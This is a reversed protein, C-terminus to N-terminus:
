RFYNNIELLLRGKINPLEFAGNKHDPLNKSTNVCFVTKVSTPLQLMEGAFSQGQDIVDIDLCKRVPIYNLLTVILDNNRKRPVSLISPPLGYGALPKGVMQVIIESLIERIFLNGSQRYERFIPDSFYIVNKNSMVAPYIQDVRDPPTQFHSCFKLDSRKFYPVVRDILVKFDGSPKMNLGRQYFVRESAFGNKQFSATPKWFTPWAETEGDCHLPLQTLAWENNKDFGSRFSILTKGGDKIRNNLKEKLKDTIVVSDPLIILSFGTLDSSDDLMAVDYHLEELLLVVGEESKSSETENIGPYNPCLVGIQPLSVSDKYFVEAEATQKYVSGIMRYTEMDLVGRPHLQDGVSNAGGLAQSRFCEYELAAQPKLGGFDGWMKQFKGTMGLWPKGKYALRRALRPFHYYGWFGSPLSEIEFHTQYAAKKMVGEDGNIYLNNPTNYFVSAAPAKSKIQASFRRTFEEQALSEFYIQNEPTDKLLNHKSRFKISEDSWSGEEHYFLIDVFLGDVEFQTLIENLHAEIYDQYDPNVWDNFKWPAQQKAGPDAGPSCNAFSGNKKLQRWEPHTAAINEEWGITTYIPARIGEKHLAELMEGLLNKGKLAPHMVGVRTPYYSMGHHCKAFVTISNINSDKLTRAFATADFQAAVDGIFPSTHFDLHVQRQHTLFNTRDTSDAFGTNPHIFTSVKNADEGNGFGNKIGILSGASIVAGTQIFKRREM